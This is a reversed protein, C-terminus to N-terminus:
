ESAAQCGLLIKNTIVWSEAGGCIDVAEVVCEDGDEDVLMVDYNDCPINKLSFSEGSGIVDDGLQDPGWEDDDSSSLYFHDIQWDSKNVVKVTAKKPAAHLQAPVTLAVLAALALGCPVALKRM